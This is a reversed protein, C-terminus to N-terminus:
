PEIRKKVIVPIEFGKIDWGYMDVANVVLTCPVDALPNTAESNPAFEFRNFGFAPNFTVTFYEDIEGNADTVLKHGGEQIKLSGQYPLYMYANYLADKTSTGYIWAAKIFYADASGPEGSGAGYEVEKAFGVQMPAPLAELQEETVWDWSYTHNYINSYVSNFSTVPVTHNYNNDANSSIGLYCYTVTTAHQTVNNIFDKAVVLTGDGAVDIHTPTGTKSNAFRINYNAKNVPAAPFNFLSTMEMSGTVADPATWTNPVLYGNWVNNEDLQETKVSFGAPGATPLVKKYTIKMTALKHDTSNYIVLEGNYVHDDKYQRWDGNTAVAYVDTVKTFDVGTPNQSTDYVPDGDADVFYAHFAPSALDDNLGYKDTKWTWSSADELATLTVGVENTRAKAADNALYLDSATVVTNVAPWQVGELGLSVYFARGDPDALTGDYNVAYVRFGIIDKIASTSNITIETEHGEVVTNLGTYTYSNWANWESPASEVANVTDLAVYFARINKYVDEFEDDCMITIKLPQGQVAPYIDEDDRDDCGTLTNDPTIVYAPTDASHDWVLEDYTIPHSKDGLSISATSYRNNIYSIHTDDDIWVPLRNMMPMEHWAFSIDYSSIVQRDPADELTNNIAVAYVVPRAPAQRTALGKPGGQDEIFETIDVGGAAAFVEEDYKTLEFAVAFLGPGDAARTLLKDVRKVSTVNINPFPEGLSNVFSIMDPTIKANTPSVRIIVTDGKQYQDGKKFTIANKIGPAFVVDQGVTATQLTVFGFGNWPKLISGSNWAWQSDLLSVHTVATMTLTKLSEIQDIIEDIEDQMAAFDKQLTGVDAALDDTRDYLEELDELIDAITASTGDEQVDLIAELVIIRQLLEGKLEALSGDYDGIFTNFRQQLLTFAGNEGILGEMATELETVKDKFEAFEEATGELTEVRDALAQLAAAAQSKYSELAAKTVYTDAVEGKLSSIASNIAAQMESKAAALESRLSSLDKDLRGIDDDYDKCATFAVFMALVAVVLFKFPNKKM